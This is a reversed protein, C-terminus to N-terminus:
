IPRVWSGDEGELYQAVRVISTRVYRSFSVVDSPGRGGDAGNAAYSEALQGVIAGALIDPRLAGEESSRTTVVLRVGEGAADAFAPAPPLDGAPAAEPALGPSPATSAWAAGVDGAFKGELRVVRRKGNRVTEVEGKSRVRALAQSVGEPTPALAAPFPEGTLADPAARFTVHWTSLTLAASLSAARPGVYAADLPALDPALNARLAALYNGAPRYARVWLDFWEDFSSVGVPLAPGYAAKMRPTFGQTVAYPVGSRHVGRELARLLELHSLYRLRGTESFRVRLRFLSEEPM